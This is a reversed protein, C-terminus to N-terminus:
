PTPQRTTSDAANFSANLSRTCVLHSGSDRLIEFRKKSLQGAHREGRRRVHPLFIEQGPKRNAAAATTEARSHHHDHCCTHESDGPSEKM